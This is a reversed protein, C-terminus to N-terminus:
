IDKNYSVHNLLFSQQKPLMRSLKVDVERFTPDTSKVDQILYIDKSALEKKKENVPEHFSRFTAHWKFRAFQSMKYGCTHYLM